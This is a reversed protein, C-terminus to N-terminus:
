SRRLLRLGSSAGVALSALIVLCLLAKSVPEMAGFILWAHIVACLAGTVALGLHLPRWIRPPIPRRLTSVIGAALLGALGAVGWASFPTPARLLLADTIDEPSYLWLGAVHALALALIAAGLWRHRRRRARTAVGSVLLPQVALLALAATGTLGGFIWVAERGRQLPSAAALGFAVAALVLVPIVMRRPLRDAKSPM